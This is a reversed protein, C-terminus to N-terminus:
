YLTFNPETGLHVKGPAKEGNTCRYIYVKEPTALMVDKRGDGDFDGELISWEGKSQAAQGPRNGDVVFTAIRQGTRDYMAGSHAVIIEAFGDGTWDLLCHHRSYEGMIQGLKTGNANLVWLPSKGLPQHDIDVLIQPGSHDPFIRGINISEFHVGSREWIVQGHGNIVALNNAGCCTLALRFDEPSEGRKLIRVCDLHGKAQDVTESKYVWRVSGDANLMAYGAMIEDRGDGDIDMPRPQHATRFAGPDTIQWLLKGSHDYAWIRHYRDKVLCEGPYGQGSLDCFVLCDTADQAIAIEGKVQGTLGDLEVIRGQTCLVVENKGDNDWDHIQCAVDHHWIKRGIDPHGWTWLVTGDLNQASVSSTCHVDGQNFNEASVIEVEMDGDIDGAVIWQGGYEPELAVTKWPKLLRGTSETKGVDTVDFRLNVGIEGHASGCMSLVYVCLIFGARKAKSKVSDNVM